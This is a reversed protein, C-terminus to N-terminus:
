VIQKKRIKNVEKILNNPIQMVTILTEDCFIYVKDGYLRINNARKNKFYLSDIWKKLSGKTQSHTVGNTLVKEAIRDHSKKNLGNREKLRESAHETVKM